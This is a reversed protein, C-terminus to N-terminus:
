FAQLLVVEFSTTWGVEASNFKKHGEEAYSFSKTGGEGKKTTTFSTKCGGGVRGNQLGM